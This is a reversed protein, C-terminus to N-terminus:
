CWPLFLEPLSPSLCSVAASKNLMINDGDNIRVFECNFHLDHETHSNDHYINNNVAQNKIAKKFPRFCTNFLKDKIFGEM